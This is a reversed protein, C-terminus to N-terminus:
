QERPDPDGDLTVFYDYYPLLFRYGEKLRDVIDRSFVEDTLKDEHCISFSKTRYWPELLKSPAASRPRKYDETELQFEKQRALRRTLTEMTKPDRDIRARLKAMTLPKPLYYGMGYTWGEPALEFWFTPHATWQESPQEVSFWLHDKYPGRGHLRRADRYIRTVKCVLPDEPRKASIYDYVEAGLEKMPRYFSQLYHLFHTSRYQLHLASNNDHPYQRKRGIYTDFLLDSYM